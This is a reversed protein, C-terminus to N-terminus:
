PSVQRLGRPAKSRLGGSLSASWQIVNISEENRRQQLQTYFIRSIIRIACLEM